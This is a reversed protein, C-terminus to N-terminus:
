TVEMEECRLHNGVLPEALNTNFLTSKGANGMRIGFALTQDTFLCLSLLYGNLLVQNFYSMIRKPGTYLFPLDTCTKTQEFNKGSRM